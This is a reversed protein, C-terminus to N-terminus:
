SMFNINFDIQAIIIKANLKSGDSHYNPREKQEKNFRSSRIQINATATEENPNFDIICEKGNNKSVGSLRRHHEGDDIPWQSQFHCKEDANLIIILQWEVNLTLHVRHPPM